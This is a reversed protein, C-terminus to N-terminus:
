KKELTNKEHGEVNKSIHWTCLLHAVNPFVVSIANMLALDRDTVVVIPTTSPNFINKLCSLAWILNPENEHSM